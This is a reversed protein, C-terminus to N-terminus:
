YLISTVSSSTVTMAAYRSPTTATLRYQAPRTSREPQSVELFLMPRPKRTNVTTDVLTPAPVMTPVAPAVMCEPM